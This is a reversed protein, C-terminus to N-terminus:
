DDPQGSFLEPNGGVLALDGAGLHVIRVLDEEGARAGLHPRDAVNIPARDATALYTRNGRRELVQVEIDHLAALGPVRVPESGDTQRPPRLRGSRNGSRARPRPGAEDVM